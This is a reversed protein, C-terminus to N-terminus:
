KRFSVELPIGKQQPEFEKERLKSFSITLAYPSFVLESCNFHVYSSNRVSYLRPLCTHFVSIREKEAPKQPQQCRRLSRSQYSSQTFFFCSRCSCRCRCNFSLLMQKGPIWVGSAGNKEVQGTEKPLQPVQKEDKVGAAVRALRSMYGKAELLDVPCIVMDADLIQQLSTKGVATDDYICIVKPMETTFKQVERKWQDILGPPVVVLSASSKRPFERKKRAAAIGQLIIAISIVTKGATACVLNAIHALFIYRLFIM